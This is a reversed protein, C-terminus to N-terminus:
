GVGWEVGTPCRSSRPTLHRQTPIKALINALSNLATECTEVELLPSAKIFVHSSVADRLDALHLIIILLMGIVIFPGDLIPKGQLDQSQRSWHTNQINTGTRSPPGMKQCIATKNSCRNVINTVVPWLPHDIPVPQDEVFIYCFSYTHFFSKIRYGADTNQFVDAIM